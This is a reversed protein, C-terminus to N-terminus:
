YQICYDYVINENIFLHLKLKFLGFFTKKLVFVHENTHIKQIKYSILFLEIDDIKKGILQDESIIKKNENYFYYKKSKM